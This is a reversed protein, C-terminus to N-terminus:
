AAVGASEVRPRSESGTLGGFTPDGPCILDGDHTLVMLGDVPVRTWLPFRDSGCGPCAPRALGRKPASVIRARLAAVYAALREKARDSIQDPTIQGVGYENLGSGECYGCFIQMPDVDDGAWGSGDCQVCDAWPRSTLLYLCEAPDACRADMCAPCARLRTVTVVLPSAPM